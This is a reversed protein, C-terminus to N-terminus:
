HIFFGLEYENGSAAILKDDVFSARHTLKRGDSSVAWCTLFKNRHLVHNRRRVVKEYCRSRWEPLAGRLWAWYGVQCRAGGAGAGGALGELVGGVTKPM